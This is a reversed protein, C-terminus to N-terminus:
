SPGPWATLFDRCAEVAPPLVRGARSLLGVTRSLPAPLVHAVAVPRGQGPATAVSRPLLAVGLGHGVLDRVRRPDRSEFRVRPAFGAATAAAALSARSESDPPLAVWPEDRLDVPAVGDRGALRHDPPLALVLEETFLSTVAVDQLAADPVPALALDLRRDRVAALMWAATGSRLEVEVEPYEAHFGALCGPLDYPDLSQIAGLLVRGAVVGAARGAEARAADLETLVRRARVLFREGAGTLEVRRTTRRFLPVGLEAELRRVQASVAPQAVRLEEAARTFHGHRAVAEVYVLQRLEVSETHGSILTLPLSDQVTDTL